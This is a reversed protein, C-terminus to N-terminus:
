GGRVRPYGGSVWDVILNGYENAAQEWAFHRDRDDRSFGCTVPASCDHKPPHQDLEIGGVGARLQDLGAVKVPKELPGSDVDIRRHEIALPDVLEALRDNSRHQEPKM